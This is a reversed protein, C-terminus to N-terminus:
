DVHDPVGLARRWDTTRERMLHHRQVWDQLSKGRQRRAEPSNIMLRVSEIWTQTNNDQILNVPCQLYPPLASAIVPIGLMGYEIVKLHSKCRNFDNDVLPAVALDLNMSALAEPYEDFPRMEHVEKALHKIKEPCMGLFIWDVEQKTAKIVPELLALDGAHQRAGSWGIRPRFNHQKRDRKALNLWPVEPLSNEVVSLNPHDLDLHQALASTTLVVRHSLSAAYTLRDAVDTPMLRQVPNYDPLGTWLDDIVLVVTLNPHRTLQELMSLGQDNLYPQVVVHSANSAKVTELACFGSQEVWHFVPESFGLSQSLQLLPLRVRYQAPGWSDRMVGVLRLSRRNLAIKMPKFWPAKSDILHSRFRRAILDFNSPAPASNKNGPAERARRTSLLHEYLTRYSSASDECSQVQTDLLRRRIEALKGQQHIQRITKAWAEPTMVPEIWGNIGSEIRERLAGRGSCLVPVGHAWSESVVLSFSEEFFSPVLTLDINAMAKGVEGPNYFGCLQINDPLAGADFSKIRGHIRISVPLDILRAALRVVLEAGKLCQDGGFYGLVMHDSTRVEPLNIEPIETGHPILHLRETSAFDFANLLKERMFRSPVTIADAKQLLSEVIEKRGSAYDSLGGPIGKSGAYSRLCRTCRQDAGCVPLGCPQGNSYEIQDHIPCNLYFDHISIVVQKGLRKALLPLLLSDWHLLHHFHIIEAGSGQIVRGLALEAQPCSLDAAATGLRTAPTIWRNNLMLERCMVTSRLEIDCWANQTPGPYILTQWYDNALSRILARTVRETGGIHHQRHLVHLIAARGDNPRALYETKERLPNEQWWSQVLAGYEPWRLDLKRQDRAQLENVQEPDFSGQGRHLVCARDAVIIEFGLKMARMSFDNEQGHGPAFAPDFGQLQQILDRSILMCFGVATPLRTARLSSTACKFITDRDGDPLISLFAAHNSVPCVIGARPNEALAYQLHALWGSAVQTDSNLLVLDCQTLQFALNVCGVFGISAQNRVVHTEDWQEIFHSIIDAVEPNESADDLLWVNDGVSLTPLLSILCEDLASANNNIPIAIDLQKERVPLDEGFM